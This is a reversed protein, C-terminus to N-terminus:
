DITGGRPEVRLSLGFLREEDLNRQQELYQSVPPCVRLNYPVLQFKRCDSLVDALMRHKVFNVLEEGDAVLKNPNGEQIFLLDALYVGVYPVAPPSLSRVIDRYRGFNAQPSALSVLDEWMEATKRSSYVLDWTRRLRSVAAGSLGAVVAFMGHLNSLSRLESAMQIFKKVLAARKKVDPVTCINYMVWQSIDNFSATLLELPAPTASASRKTTQGLLDKPTVARFLDSQILTLQRALEVTDVEEVATVESQDSGRYRIEPAPKANVHVFSADIVEKDQQLTKLLLAGMPAMHASGDTATAVKETFAKIGAFLTPDTDIDYRFDDIWKKIFTLVRMVIDNAAEVQVVPAGKTSLSTCALDWKHEVHALVESPSVFSRYTYLFAAMFTPIDAQHSPDTIADVINDASAAKLVVKGNYNGLLLARQSAITSMRPRTTSGASAADAEATASASAEHAGVVSELLAIQQQARELQGQLAALHASPGASAGLSGHAANVASEITQLLQETVDEVRVVAPLGTVGLGGLARGAAAANEAEAGAVVLVPEILGVGLRNV